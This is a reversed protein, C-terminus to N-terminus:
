QIEGINKAKEREKYIEGIRKIIPSRKKRLAIFDPDFECDFFNKYTDLMKKLQDGIADDEKWLRELEKETNDLGQNIM